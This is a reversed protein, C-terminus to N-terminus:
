AWNPVPDRRRIKKEPSRASLFILTRYLSNKISYFKPYIKRVFFKFNKPTNLFKIHRIKIHKPLPWLIIFKKYVPLGIKTIKIPLLKM